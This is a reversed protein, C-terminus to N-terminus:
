ELEEWLKYSLCVNATNGPNLIFSEPKLEGNLKRTYHYAHPRVINEQLQTLVWAAVPPCVGRSLYARLDKAEREPFVYDDPFGMIRQYERDTVPRGPVAWFSHNLLTPCYSQPDLLRLSQSMYKGWVCHAHSMDLVQKTTKPNKKREHKLLITALSGFGHHGALVERAFTAGFDKKLRAIQEEYKRALTPNVPDDGDTLLQGVVTREPSHHLRLRGDRLLRKKVFLAWFRPRWQPTGFTVSNQLVRYVDYGYKKAADEHVQWAGALARVVSEVALADCNGGLAYDLVQRTCQFKAADVGSKEKNGITMMSFAACPPHALVIHGRLDPKRPWAAYTSVYTLKPYNHQQIGIGYGADEFSGVIPHRKAKAAILLSGAYSNIILVPKKTLHRQREEKGVSMLTTM